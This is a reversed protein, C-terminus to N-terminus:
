PPYTNANVDCRTIFCKLPRTIFATNDIWRNHGIQSRTPGCITVQCVAPFGERGGEGVQRETEMKQTNCQVCVEACLKCMESYVIGFLSYLASMDVSIRMYMYLIVYLDM